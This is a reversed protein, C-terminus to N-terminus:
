DFRGKRLKQMYDDVNKLDDRDSWIGFLESEKATSSLMEDMEDFVEQQTFISGKQLDEEAHAILKLLNFANQMSEYSELDQLVAKTEGNETIAVPQHTANIEALMESAHLQLYSIPKSEALITM